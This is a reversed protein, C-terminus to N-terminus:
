ELNQATGNCGIFVGGAGCAQYSLDGKALEVGLKELPATNSTTCVLCRVEYDLELLHAVLAKGIFGSAGTVLVKKM